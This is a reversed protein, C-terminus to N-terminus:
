YNIKCGNAKVVKLCRTKMSGVLKTLYAHDMQSWERIIAAKLKTVSNYQKGEAYVCRTLYGWVNEIPNLDPSKAPWDLFRVNQKALFKKTEASRHISANDHQFKFNIGFALHASPLLYESLTWIYCASDQRGDLFAIQTKGSAWIGAWVMVSGGGNQRSFFSLKEKRLDHWYCQLGDPGDLNWKKEDSFIVSNWCAGYDIMKEVWKVRAVEHEKMLRPSKNLKAYKFVEM